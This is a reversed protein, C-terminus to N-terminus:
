EPKYINDIWYKYLEADPEGNDEERCWKAFKVPLDLKLLCEFGMDMAKRGDPIKSGVLEICTERYEELKNM